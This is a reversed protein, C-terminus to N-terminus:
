VIRKMLENNENQLEVVENLLEALEKDFSAKDTLRLERAEIAREKYRHCIATTFLYTLLILLFLWM